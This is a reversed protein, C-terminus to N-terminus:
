RRAAVVARDTQAESPLDGASVRQWLDLMTLFASLALPGLVLGIAGFLSISGLIAFLVVAGHSHTNGRALYPRVVNDVLGVAVMSWVALFVAAYLHGALAMGAAVPLSVIATGIGPFFSTFFTLLGFFLAQPVGAILYGVTAISAQIISTLLNAGLITRSTERFRQVIAGTRTPHLPLVQVMWGRLRPGDMLLFYLAVIMLVFQTLLSGMVTLGGVAQRAVSATVGKSALSSLTTPLTAIFEEVRTRLAEPLAEVLSQYGREAIFTQVLAIVEDFQSVAMAVLGAIPLLILINVALTVVAAAIWRRGRLAQCIREHIGSVAAALLSAMLLPKWFPFLTAGWILMAAFLCWFAFRRNPPPVGAAPQPSTEGAAQPSQSKLARSM